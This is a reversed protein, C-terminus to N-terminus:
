EPPNFYKYDQTGKFNKAGNPAISERAASLCM